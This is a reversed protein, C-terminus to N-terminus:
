EFFAFCAAAIVIAAGIFKTVRFALEGKKVREWESKLVIKAENILQRALEEEQETITKTHTIKLKSINDQFSNVKGLLSMHKKPNLRLVIRYESAYAEHTQDALETLIKLKIDPTSGGHARAISYLSTVKAVYEAIDERLADIWIQRFESTKQEKSLVATIYVIAGSILAAIIAGIAVDPIPM